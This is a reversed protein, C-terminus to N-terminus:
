CNTWHAYGLLYVVHVEACVAYDSLPSADLKGAAVAVPGAGNGGIAGVLAGNVLIHCALMTDVAPGQALAYGTVALPRGDPGRVFDCSARVADVASATAVGPVFLVSFAALILAAARRTRSM